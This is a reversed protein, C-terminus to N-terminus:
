SDPKLAPFCIEGFRKSEECATAPSCRVASHRQPSRWPLDFRNSSVLLLQTGHTRISGIHVTSHRDSSGTQAGQSMPSRLSIRGRKKQKTLENQNLGGGADFGAVPSVPRAWIGSHQGLPRQIQNARNDAQKAPEQPPQAPAICLVDRLAATQDDGRIM